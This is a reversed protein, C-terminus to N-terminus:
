TYYERFKAQVSRALSHLEAVTYRAAGVLRNVDLVLRRWLSDACKLGYSRRTIVRAKTNLGEVVASTERREFYALIGDQWRDYLAFFEQLEPEEIVVERLEELRASAEQRDCATDFIEAIDERFCYPLELAPIAEFLANLETEEEPKLDKRRRRYQWM